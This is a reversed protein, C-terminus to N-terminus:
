LIYNFIRVTHDEGCTVLSIGYRPDAADGDQRVLRGENYTIVHVGKPNWKVCRVTRGHQYQAPTVHISTIGANTKPQLLSLEVKFVVLEGSEGGCALLVTQSIVGSSSLEPYSSCDVATVATNTAASAGTSITNINMNMNIFPSFTTLVILAAQSQASDNYQLQWM